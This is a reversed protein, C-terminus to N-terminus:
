EERSSVNMAVDEDDNELEKLMTPDPEEDLIEACFFIVQKRGIEMAARPGMSYFSSWDEANHSMSLLTENGKEKFLYDRRVFKELLVDADPTMGVGGEGGPGNFHRSKKSGLVPPESPINEDIRNLFSYLDKDLIWRSGDSVPEGKCYTLALVVMLFGKEVSSTEHVSHIAKSHVGNTDDELCNIAYYRDALSKPLNKLKEMWAPIRKLEFDFCNRLRINVEEFAASSIRADSIGAEKVCKTRDIPEGALAKFLILRTLDKIAKERAEEGLKLLNAKEFARAPQINQSFEPVQSSFMMVANEEVEDVEVEEEDDDEVKGKAGKRRRSKVAVEMQEDDSVETIKRRFRAM